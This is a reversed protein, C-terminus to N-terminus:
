EPAVAVQYKRGKPARHEAPPVPAKAAQAALLAALEQNGARRAWQEPTRRKRTDRASPSAGLELLRRVINEHGGSIATIVPTRGLLHTTSDIRAGEAVLLEVVGLNGMFCACHLPTTGVIEIFM